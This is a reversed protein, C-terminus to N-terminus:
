GKSPTSGVPAGVQILPNSEDFAKEWKSIVICAVCNGLVNISTRGMDMIRDVGIIMALGDIPFNLATLTAATVVISAGPVGAIGKTTVMLVAIITVQEMITLPINFAQAVFITAIGQYITGADLNFTYGTPIVFGVTGESCGLQELKGMIRPLVSESSATSFALILEESLVKILKWLSFKFWISLPWFVGLLLVALGLYVVIILKALPLLVAFGFKAVTFAILAFVGIPAYTMVMNTVKFMTQAINHLIKVFGDKDKLTSLGVGFIVAFFVIQLLDARAAADVINTPVINALVGLIDASKGTYQDVNVKTAAGLNVGVGPQLVNAMFVGIIIAISTVVEFYFLSKVGLIGVKKIDGISCIGVVLTCFVIPVVIMKIMRIFVDGLPKVKDAYQPFLYGFAIGLILGILIQWALSPKKM